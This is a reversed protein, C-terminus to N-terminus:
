LFIKLKDIEKIKSYKSFYIKKKQKKNFKYQNLFIIIPELKNIEAYELFYFYMNPKYDLLEKLFLYNKNKILYLYDENKLSKSLDKNYKLLSFFKFSDGSIISNKLEKKFVSIIYNNMM